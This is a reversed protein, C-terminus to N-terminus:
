PRRIRTTDRTGDSVSLEITYQGPLYEDCAKKLNAFATISKTTQSAVYLRLTMLTAGNKHPTGNKRPGRSRSTKRVKPKM